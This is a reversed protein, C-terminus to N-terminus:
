NPVFWAVGEYQWNPDSNIIHNKENEDITFFHGSFHSSYFRYAPIRASGNQNYAYYAVGEYQWNPDSSILTNKENEDITYFHGSFKQSYFRHVASISQSPSGSVFVRYAAGEYQWNPDSSIIHNKENEDITFFHHNFRSSWFRYLSTINPLPNVQTVMITTTCVATGGSGVATATFLTTQSPYIRKSGSMLLTGLGIDPSIVVSTANTSSWSLDTYGGATVSSPNATMSVTPPDPLPSDQVTITLSSEVTGGDGVVSITYTKTVNPSVQTSGSLAVSGIGNDISVSTANSTTWILTSTSGTQITMPNASFNVVPTPKTVTITVTGTVTGGSGTATITYVTTDQPSVVKSGNLPVVGVGQDISLTTTNSSSWTLTSSGGEQISLPSATFSVVPLSEPTVIQYSLVSRNLIPSNAGSGQTFEAKFQIYRKNDLQSSPDSNADVPLWATWSDDPLAVSGSHLSYTISGNQLDQTPAFNLFSIQGASFGTDFVKSIYNGSQASSSEPSSVRYFSAPASQNNYSTKILDASRASDSFSVEDLKGNFWYLNGRQGFTYPNTLNPIVGKAGTGTKEVGNLYLKIDNSAYVFSLNTWENLVIAPSLQFTKNVPAAYFQISSGTSNIFIFKNSSGQSLVIQFNSRAKQNIWFSWTFAAGSALSASYPINIYQNTGNLNGARGVLGTDTSPKTTGMAQGNNVNETADKIEAAAGNWSAEDMHWFAKYNSDFVATKNQQASAQSNGYYIYIDTDATSSLTPTKVWAVLKSNAKDYISLEHDLKTKGDSSTFLIDNGNNQALTFIEANLNAESILVPFNTQNASVKTHDISIKQRKTWGSTGYWDSRQSLTVGGFGASYDTNSYTGTAWDAPTSLVWDYPVTGAPILNPLTIAYGLVLFVMVLSLFLGAKKNKSRKIFIITLVVLVLLVVLAIVKLLNQSLFAM